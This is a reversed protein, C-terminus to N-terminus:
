EDGGLEILDFESERDEVVAFCQGPPLPPHFELGDIWGGSQFFVLFSEQGSACRDIQELLWPSVASTLRKFERKPIWEARLTKLGSNCKLNLDIKLVGPGEEQLGKGAIAGLAIGHEELIALAKTRLEQEDYPLLDLTRRNKVRRPKGNSSVPGFGKFRRNESRNVTTYNSQQCSRSFNNCTKTKPDIM